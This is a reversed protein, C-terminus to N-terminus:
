KVLERVSKGGDYQVYQYRGSLYNAIWNLDDGVIEMFPLKSLFVKYDVTDFAKLLDIFFAGTM